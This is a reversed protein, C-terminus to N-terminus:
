SLKIKILKTVKNLDKKVECEWITAVKWGLMSLKDKNILDRERNRVIKSGWFDTNSKPTHDVKCGHGHWFCGHIFIATKKSPFTIDPRGHLSSHIRYRFGLKFLAKRVLLEPKTNKAKILSM